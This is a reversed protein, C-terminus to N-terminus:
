AREARPAALELLDEEDFVGHEAHEGGEGAASERHERDAPTLAHRVAILNLGSSLLDLASDVLTAFM